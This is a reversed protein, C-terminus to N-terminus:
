LNGLLPFVAIELHLDISAPKVLDVHILYFLLFNLVDKLPQQPTQIHVDVSDVAIHPKQALSRLNLPDGPALQAQADHLKLNRRWGFFDHM